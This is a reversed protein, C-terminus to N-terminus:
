PVGAPTGHTRHRSLERKFHQSPSNGVVRGVPAQEDM